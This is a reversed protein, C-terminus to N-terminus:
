IRYLVVWKGIDGLNLAVWRLEGLLDRDLLQETVEAASLHRRERIDHRILAAVHHPYTVRRRGAATHKVGVVIVDLAAVVLGSPQDIPDHAARRLAIAAVSDEHHEVLPVTRQSAGVVIRIGPCVGGQSM